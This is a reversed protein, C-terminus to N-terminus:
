TAMLAFGLGVGPFVTSFLPPRIPSRRVCIRRAQSVTGLPDIAMLVNEDRIKAADGTFLAM